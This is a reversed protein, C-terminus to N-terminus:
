FSLSHAFAPFLTWASWVCNGSGPYATMNPGDWVESNIAIYHVLGSDWSYWLADGKATSGATKANSNKAAEQLGGFRRAYHQLNAGGCEHNGVAGMYPVKSAFPQIANM